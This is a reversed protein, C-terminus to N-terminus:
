RIEKSVNVRISQEIFSQNDSVPEDMTVLEVGEAPGIANSSVRPDALVADVVLGQLDRLLGGATAKDYFGIHLVVPIPVTSGLLRATSRMDLGRPVPPFVRLRASRADEPGWELVAPGETYRNLPETLNAKDAEWQANILTVLAEALAKMAPAYTQTM